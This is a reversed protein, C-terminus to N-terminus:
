FRGSFWRILVNVFFFPSVECSYFSVQNLCRLGQPFLTPPRSFCLCNPSPHFPCRQSSSIISRASTSFSRIRKLLFCVPKFLNVHCDRHDLLIVVGMSIHTCRKPFIHIWCKVEFCSSYWLYFLVFSQSASYAPVFMHSLNQGFNEHHPRCPSSWVVGDHVLCHVHCVLRGRTPM